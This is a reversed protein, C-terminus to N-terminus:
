PYNVLHPESYRVYHPAHIEYRLPRPGFPHFTISNVNIVGDFRGVPLELEGHVFVREHDYKEGVDYLNVYDDYNLLYIGNATELSARRERRNNHLIGGFEAATSTAVTAFLFFLLAISARIM